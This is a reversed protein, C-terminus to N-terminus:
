SRARALIESDSLVGNWVRVEAIDGAFHFEKQDDHYHRIFLEKVQLDYRINTTFATGSGIQKGDVYLRVTTGDYTGAVHHWNGDWVTSGANPSEIYPKPPPLDEQYRIYFALGGGDEGDYLANPPLLVM